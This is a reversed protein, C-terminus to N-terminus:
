RRDLFQLSGKCCLNRARLDSWVDTATQITNLRQQVKDIAQQVAEIHKRSPPDTVKDVENLLSATALALEQAANFLPNM